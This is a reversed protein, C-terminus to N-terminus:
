YLRKEYSHPCPLLSALLPHRSGAGKGSGRAMLGQAALAEGRPPHPTPFLLDQAETNGLGLSGFSGHWTWLCGHEKQGCGCSLLSDEM